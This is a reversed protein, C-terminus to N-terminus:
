ATKKDADKKAKAPAAGAPVVADPTLESVKIKLIKCIAFLTEEHIGEANEGDEIRQLTRKSIKASKALQETTLGKSLRLPKLKRWDIAVQGM